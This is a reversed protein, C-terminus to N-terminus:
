IAKIIVVRPNDFCSSNKLKYKSIYKNADSLTTFIKTRDTIKPEFIFIRREGELGLFNPENYDGKKENWMHYDVMIAYLM